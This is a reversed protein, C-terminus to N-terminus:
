VKELMLVRYADDSPLGEDETISWGDLEGNILDYSRAHPHDRVRATFIIRKKAVRQMEKLWKEPSVWRSIRINMAVDVIDDPLKTDCIDGIVYDNKIVSGKAYAQKMMEQSQDMAIVNFGSEEYLQLFRGTGCPCDLVTTGPSLDSLMDTIIRNEELWKPSNERKADYGSAVDGHYKRSGQDEMTKHKPPFPDSAKWTLTESPTMEIQVAEKIRKNRYAEVDAEITKVVDTPLTVEITQRQSADEDAKHIVELLEKQEIEANM